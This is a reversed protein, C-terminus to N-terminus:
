FVRSCIYDVFFLRCFLCCFGFVFLLLFLFMGFLFVYYIGKLDKFM